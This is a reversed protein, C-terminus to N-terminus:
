ETFVQQIRTRTLCQASSQTPTEVRGRVLQTSPSLRKREEGGTEVKAVQPNIRVRLM